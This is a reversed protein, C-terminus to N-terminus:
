ATMRDLADNLLNGSDVKVQEESMGEHISCLMDKRAEAAQEEARSGICV